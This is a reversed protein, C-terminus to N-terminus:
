HNDLWKIIDSIVEDKNPECLMVHRGDIYFKYNVNRIGLISYTKILHKVTSLKDGVPDRDGSFIYIPIDKPIGSMSKGSHMEKIGKLLDYFFGASFVGGCFPDNIYIDVEDNNRSLWDFETRNPKFGANYKGFSLKNLLPSKTKAGKVKMEMYAIMLGLHLMIGQKGTTGSLIGGNITNGYKSIYSQTLFSGMSHGFLFLPLGPNEKKIIKNLELLDKVMWNFGDQGCYGVNEITKATKGHGRHDNAYVAYGARTLSDAFYEYRGATEAMGHAIQVVGRICIDNEPLWKYVFIERCETDTFTFSEKKM